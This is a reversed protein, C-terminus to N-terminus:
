RNLLFQIGGLMEFYLSAPRRLSRRALGKWGQLGHSAGGPLFLLKTHFAGRGIDYSKLLSGIDDALRGHDHRVTITPDYKGAWGALSARAVADCDEAAFRTGAGFNPDFNGIAELTDARFAMNAGKVAGPAVYSGAPFFRVETSENITVKAHSPNHLLIRGTVYGIHDANFAEITRHIHDPQVYCDDDTFSILRGTAVSLGRNRARGLGAIPELIYTLPARIAKKNDEIVAATGDTSGNDVIIVEWPFDARIEAIHKLCRGLAHARNRTCVILSVEM